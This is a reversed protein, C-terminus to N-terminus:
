EDKKNVQDQLWKKSVKTISAIGALSIKELWLKEKVVKLNNCYSCRM